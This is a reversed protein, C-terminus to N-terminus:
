QPRDAPDTDRAARLLHRAEDILAQGRETATLPTARHYIPFGVSREIYLVRQRLATDNGDYLDRAAAAFSQYGPVAVILKLRQLAGTSNAVTQLAPSPPQPLVTMLTGLTSYRGPARLPIGWQKALQTLRLHSVGAERVLAMISRRKEIYEHYLWDRTVTPRSRLLVGDHQLLRRVIAPSCSALHAIRTLSLQQNEYLDHLQQPALLGTRRDALPKGNAPRPPLGTDTAECHLRVHEPTLNLNQAIEHVSETTAFLDRFAEHDIASPSAGPWRLDSVWEDPPEWTVPESIGHRTLHHQAQERLFLRLERPAQFRFERIRATYPSRRDEGTLLALIYWRMVSTRNTGGSSWNHQTCLRTYADLDVTVTDPTFLARRRAYDIPSGHEDLAYALQALASALPTHDRGQYHGREIADRDTHIRHNGLLPGVREFNLEPPGGTLLLFSACGRRFAAIRVRTQSQDSTPTTPLLRMTWGPWLLAPVMAARRRIDEASRDPWRPTPSASGYRLRAHLDAQADLQALVRPVLGPATRIWRAALSGINTKQRSTLLTRDAALIWDFVAERDRHGPQLAIRAIAAGLAANHADHTSTGDTLAPLNGGCEALITHVVAPAQDPISHLGRVARRALAYLQRLEAAAAPRREPASTLLAALHHHATLVLGGAPLPVAQALTLDAGCAVRRRASRALLEPNDRTCSSPGPGLRRERWPKPSRGCSPCSDVLLVRHRPCAFASPLCWAIPGRGGDASLCAPCYRPRAGGFRWSPALAMRRRDDVLTVALGDYLELTMSVLERRPLGTARGLAEAEHAFMRITLSAAKTRPLGIHELFGNSTTRLRRAYAAIWSELAEGPQPAVFIPLRGETWASM